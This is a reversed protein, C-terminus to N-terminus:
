RGKLKCTSYDVPLQKFSPDKQWKENSWDRSAQEPCQPRELIHKVCLKMSPDLGYDNLALENSALTIIDCLSDVLENMDGSKLADIYEQLEEDVMSTFKGSPKTIARDRRFKTLGDKWKM